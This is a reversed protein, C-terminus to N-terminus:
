ERHVRARTETRECRVRRESGREVGRTGTGRTTPTPTRWPQAREFVVSPARHARADRTEDDTSRARSFLPADIAVRARRRFRARARCRIMCAHM